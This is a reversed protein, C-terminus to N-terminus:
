SSTADINELLQSINSATFLTVRKKQAEDIIFKKYRKRYNLILPLLLKLGKINGTIKGSKIRMPLTDFNRGIAWRLQRRFLRFLCLLPSIDLFFVVDAYDLRRSYSDMYSGEIIWTPTNLIKKLTEEWNNSNSPIWSPNWFYDDLSYCPKRLKTSLIKSFTTKGSAPSGVVLIKNFM